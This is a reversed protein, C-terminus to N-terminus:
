EQDESFASPDIDIIPSDAKRAAEEAAKPKLRVEAPVTGVVADALRPLGPRGPRRRQADGRAAVARVQAPEPREDQGHGRTVHHKQAFEALWRYAIRARNCNRERTTGGPYCHLRKFM